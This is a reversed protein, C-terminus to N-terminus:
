APFCFSFLFVVSPYLLSFASLFHLTTLLDNVVVSLRIFYTFAIILTSFSTLFLSILLEFYFLAFLPFYLASTVM